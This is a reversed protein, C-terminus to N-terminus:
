ERKSRGGLNLRFRELAMSYKVFYVVFAAQAKQRAGKLRADSIVQITTRIPPLLGKLLDRDVGLFSRQNKPRGDYVGGAIRTARKHIEFLSRRSPHAVCAEAAYVLKYGQRFVRHGWEADGTSKFTSANFTGVKEIVHRFTFLNATASYHREIIDKEQAFATVQEYLEAMTPHTPNQVFLKIDGGALGCNSTDLLKFVGKEIWDLAPICDSDTFALVEGRALSIGKNRAAYSSPICEYAARAQSFAAVIPEVPEDSGNDVVIVEYLDRPYTQNELAQLCLKLREPDNFIPIIVSVFPSVRECMLM